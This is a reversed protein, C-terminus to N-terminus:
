ELKGHFELTRKGSTALQAAIHEGGGSM